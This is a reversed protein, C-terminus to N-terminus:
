SRADQELHRYVLMPDVRQLIYLQSGFALALLPQRNGRRIPGTENQNMREREVCKKMEKTTKREM